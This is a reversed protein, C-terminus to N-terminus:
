SAANEKRSSALQELSETLSNDLQICLQLSAAPIRLVQADTTAKIDANRPSGSLFGMEGFIAGKSLPIVLSGTDVALEGSLLIFISDSPDGRHLIFEEATIDEQRADLALSFHSTKSLQDFFPHEAIEQYRAQIADSLPPPPLLLVEVESQAELRYNTARNEQSSATHNLLIPASLRCKEIASGASGQRYAVQGKQLLWIHELASNSSFIEAKPPYQRATTSQLTEQLSEETFLQSDILKIRLEDVLQSDTVTQFQLARKPKLQKLLSVSIKLGQLLFAIVYVSLLSFLFLLWLQELAERATFGQILLEKYNAILYKHGLALFAYLWVFWAQIIRRHQTLDEETDKFISGILDNHLFDSVRFRQKHLSLTELLQSGPTDYFPCLGWVMILFAGVGANGFPYDSFFHSLILGIGSVMAVSSIALTSFWRQVERPAFFIPKEHLSLHIIGFLQSIKWQNQPHFASLFYGQIVASISLATAAGAYAMLSGLFWDKQFVFPNNPFDGSGWFALGLGGLFIAIQLLLLVPQPSDDKKHLPLSLTFRFFDFQILSAKRKSQLFPQESPFFHSGIEESEQIFNRHWLKRLLQYFHLAGLHQSREELEDFSRSGDLLLVLEKDAQNLLLQANNQPNFLLFSDKWPSIKINTKLKPNM